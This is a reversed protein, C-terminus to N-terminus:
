QECAEGIEGICCQVCNQICGACLMDKVSGAEKSVMCYMM